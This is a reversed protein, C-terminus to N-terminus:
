KKNGKEDELECVWKEKLEEIQDKYDDISQELGCDRCVVKANAWRGKIEAKGGCILCRLTEM